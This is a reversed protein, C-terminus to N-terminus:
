EPPNEFCLMAPLSSPLGDSSFSSHDSKLPLLEVVFVKSSRGKPQLDKSGTETMFVNVAHKGKDDSPTLSPDGHAISLNLIEEM